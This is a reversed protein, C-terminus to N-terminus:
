GAAPLAAVSAPRVQGVPRGGGTVPAVAAPLLAALEEEDLWGLARMVALLAPAGARAGGDLVKLALGQGSALNAAGYVAEAGTKAVLRGGAVEPLLSDLQGSGRILLPHDRLAAVLAAPGGEGTVARAGLRAYATALGRLSLAATPAGCGDCGVHGSEEGTWLALARSIAQQVPHGPDLYDEVPWGRAVAGALMWAHKGSCNHYVRRPEAAAARADPHAPLDAPCRLAGEDLGIAALTRGVARVHVPEGTHSGCASALAEAGLGLREGAGLRLVALAQFPKACSRPYVVLEPDGLAAAVRGDPDCAVAVGLHRSEVLGSREVEVLVQM